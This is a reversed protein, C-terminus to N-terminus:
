DNSTSKPEAAYWLHLAPGAEGQETSAFGNVHTKSHTVRRIILVAQQGHSERLWQVLLDGGVRVQDQESDDGFMCFKRISTTAVDRTNSWTLERAVPADGLFTGGLLEFEWVRPAVHKHKKDPGIGATPTLALEVDVLRDFDVDTLDFRLWTERQWATDQEDHKVLLEEADAYNEGPIQSFVFTDWAPTKVVDAPSSTIALSASQEATRIRAFRNATFADRTIKASGTADREVRATGGARVLQPEVGIVGGVRVLGEYVHLLTGGKPSVAVAFETGLDEVHGTPTYITFHKAAPTDVRAILQGFALYGSNPPHLIFSSPHVDKDKTTEGKDKAGVVFEAPGEIIVKAGTDYTLEVLGSSFAVTQGAELRHNRPSIAHEEVWEPRHWATL